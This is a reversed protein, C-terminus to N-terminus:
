LGSATYNVSTDLAVGREPYWFRGCILWAYVIARNSMVIAAIGPPLGIPRRPDVLLRMLTVSAGAITWGVAAVTM